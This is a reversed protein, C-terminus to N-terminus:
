QDLGLALARKVAEARNRANLAAYIKSVHQKVTIETLGLQGAIQKNSLGDTLLRLIQQQRGTLSPAAELRAGPIRSPLRQWALRQELLPPVYREGRLVKELAARLTRAGISKPIVGRAGRALADRADSSGIEGSLIVVPVSPALATLRDLSDLGCMGPMRWDLIVLDLDGTSHLADLVQELDGAEFVAAGPMVRELYLKITERVLQHDDALLIRRAADPRALMM